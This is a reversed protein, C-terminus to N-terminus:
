RSFDKYKLKTIIRKGNRSFLEVIPRAVIGEAVFDGWHSTFGAKVIDVMADLSGNGIIPVAPMDFAYAIDEVSSRKLWWPGVCVDFLVFDQDSLYKGGKQIGSGFGEGYFCVGEPFSSKFLELQPLFRENLKQVLKAPIQARDTKGGFVINTGDFMVRINTGDVKETFVWTNARLYSFEPLSYAGEVLTKFKTDPDRKYVTQIKHYTNM